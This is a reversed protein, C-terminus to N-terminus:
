KRLAASENVDKMIVIIFIKVFSCISINAVSKNATKHIKFIISNYKEVVYL